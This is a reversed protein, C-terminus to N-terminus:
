ANRLIPHPNSEEPEIKRSTTVAHRGPVTGHADAGLDPPRNIVERLDLREADTYVQDTTAAGTNPTTTDGM